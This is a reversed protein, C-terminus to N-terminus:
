TTLGIIGQYIAKIKLDTYADLGTVVTGGSPHIKILKRGSYTAEFHAYGATPVSTAEYANLDPNFDEGKTMAQVAIAQFKRMKSKSAFFYDIKNVESLVAPGSGHQQRLRGSHAGQVFYLTPLRGEAKTLFKLNAASFLAPVDKVQSKALQVANLLKQKASLNRKKNTTFNHVTQSWDWNAIIIKEAMDAAEALLRATNIDAGDLKIVRQTVTAPFVLSPRISNQRAQRHQATIRPSNQVSQIQKRQTVMKPSDHIDAIMARQAIMETSNQLNSASYQRRFRSDAAARSLVERREPTVSRTKKM